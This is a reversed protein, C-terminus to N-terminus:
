KYSKNQVKHIIKQYVPMMDPERVYHELKEIELWRVGSNEDEKVILRDTEEAALSYTINLHLHSSVYSGNKEHGWVPLIDLTLIKEQIPAIHVIGTEEKAEKLAVYLLDKDGDAHGGTWSWSQYINHYVMLVKDLQKNFIMGSSTIHGLECDRTLIQDGFEKIYRQIIRKDSEEQDTVPLFEEIQYKYDM